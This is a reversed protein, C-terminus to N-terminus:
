SSRNYLDQSHLAWTGPETGSVKFWIDSHRVPTIEKPPGETLMNYGCNVAIYYMNWHEMGKRNNVSAKM